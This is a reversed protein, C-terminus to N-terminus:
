EGQQSLKSFSIKAEAVMQHRVGIIITAIGQGGGICATILAYKGASQKLEYIAKQSSSPM